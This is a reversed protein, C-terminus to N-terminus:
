VPIVDFSPTGSLIFVNASKIHLGSSTYVSFTLPWAELWGSKGFYFLRAAEEILDFHDKELHHMVQFSEQEM